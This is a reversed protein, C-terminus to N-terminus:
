QKSEGKHLDEVPFLFLMFDRERVMEGKGYGRGQQLCM